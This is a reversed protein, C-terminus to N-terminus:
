IKGEGDIEEEKEEEIERNKNEPCTLCMLAEEGIVILEKKCLYLKRRIGKFNVDEETFQRLDCDIDFKPKIEKKSLVERIIELKNARKRIGEWTRNPLRNLIDKKSHKPYIQQLITDEEPIWTEKFRKM